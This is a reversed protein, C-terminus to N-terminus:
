GPSNKRRARFAAVRRNPEGSEYSQAFEDISARISEALPAEEWLKCLRKQARIAAPEGALIADLAKDVEADLHALPAMKEVLGWVLAEAAGITEGTMVLWRARGAGVLRPLVAAEVVSPIGLRVEPMGFAASDAAIRLDCCAALELGAGLCWGNIRAIVPVPCDRLAACAAHILGIFERASVPDLSGLTELDAGGVFAKDGAGTIVIARINSDKELKKISSVFDQLTPRTLINLKGPNDITVRAVLGAARSELQTRIM